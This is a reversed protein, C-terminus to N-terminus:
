RDFQDVGTLETHMPLSVLVTTGRHQAHNHVRRLLRIWFPVSGRGRGHVGDDISISHIARLGSRVKICSNKWLEKERVMVYMCLLNATSLVMALLLYGCVGSVHVRYYMSVHLVRIEM